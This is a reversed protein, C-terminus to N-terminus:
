GAIEGGFLCVNGEGYVGNGGALTGHKAGVTTQGILDDRGAGILTFEAENFTPTTRGASRRCDDVARDVEATDTNLCDTARQRGPLDDAAGNFVAGNTATAVYIEGIPRRRDDHRPLVEGYVTLDGKTFLTTEPAAARAAAM